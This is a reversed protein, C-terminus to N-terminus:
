AIKIYKLALKAHFISFYPFFAINVYCYNVYFLLNPIKTKMYSFESQCTQKDVSIINM